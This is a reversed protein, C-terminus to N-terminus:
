GQQILYLCQNIVAISYTCQNIVAISYACQHIVAISYACQNIVAMSYMEYVGAPSLPHNSSGLSGGTLTTM